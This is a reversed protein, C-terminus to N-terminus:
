KQEQEQIFNILQVDDHNFGMMLEHNNIIESIAIDFYLAHEIQELTFGDGRQQSIIRYKINNPAVDM